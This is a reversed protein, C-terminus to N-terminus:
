NYKVYGKQSIFTIINYELSIFKEYRFETVLICTNTQGEESETLSTLTIFYNGMKRFSEILLAAFHETKLLMFLKFIRKCVTRSLKYLTQLQHFGTHNEHYDKASV